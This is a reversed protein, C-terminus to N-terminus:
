IRYANDPTIYSAKIKYKSQNYMKCWKVIGYKKIQFTRWNFRFPYENKINKIMNRVIKRNYIPKIERLKREELNM